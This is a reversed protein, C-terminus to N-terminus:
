CREVKVLKGQVFFGVQFEDWFQMKEVEDDDYRIIIYPMYFIAIKKFM